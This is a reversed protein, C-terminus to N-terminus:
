KQTQLTRNLTVMVLNISVCGVSWTVHFGLTTYMGRDPSRDRSRNKTQRQTYICVIGFICYIVVVLKTNILEEEIYLPVRMGIVPGNKNIQERSLAM